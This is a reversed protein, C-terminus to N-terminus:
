PEPEGEAIRRALEAGLERVRAESVGTHRRAAEQSRRDIEVLATSRERDLREQLERVAADVEADHANVRADLEARAEAVRGEAATEADRITALVRQEVEILGPLV